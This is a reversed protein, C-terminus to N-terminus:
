FLVLQKFMYLLCCVYFYDFLLLQLLTILLSLTTAM